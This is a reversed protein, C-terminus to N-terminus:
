YHTCNLTGSQDQRCTSQRPSAPSPNTQMPPLPQIPQYAPSSARGRLIAAAAAGANARNQQDIQMMCQSMAPTGAAFGFAACREHLRALYQDREYQERQAREQPSVCAALLLPMVLAAYRM